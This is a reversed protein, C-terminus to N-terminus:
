RRPATAVAAHIAAAVQPLPVTACPVGTALAAQPMSALLATRPDQVIGQGGQEVVARLGAAGDRGMGTLVVAVAAAGFQTAVQVLCPDAAPRVGWVPAEDSLTCAFGGGTQRVGLHRGGPAVVVVDEWLPDGHAAEVVPLHGIADLRRALSTTFGAPMHQVVLVAAGLGPRLGPVIASLAQPGGTSCAVVVVRRAPVRALAPRPDAPPALSPRPAEQRPVAAPLASAATHLADTLARRFRQEEDADASQPKRVLDIAGLAMAHVAADRGDVTTVSSVMVVPRPAAQMLGRLTELGDGGPMTIDLTIVDPAAAAIAPLVEDGRRATGVVSFGPLASVHDSLVRRMLASDDVILVRISM